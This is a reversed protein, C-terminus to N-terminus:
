GNRSPFLIVVSNQLRMVSNPSQTPLYLSGGRIISTYAKIAKEATQQATFCVLHYHRGKLLDRLAKFDREAQLLWRRGEERKNPRM